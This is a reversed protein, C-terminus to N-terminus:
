RSRQTRARRTTRAKRVKAKTAKAKPAAKVAPQVSASATFRAFRQTVFIRGDAALVEGVGVSTFSPNLINARHGASAMLREHANDVSANYAVNEAVAGAGAPRNAGFFSDDHSIDGANAQTQSWARASDFLRGDIALPALGANVREANIKAVFTMEDAGTDGAASAPAVDLVGAGVLGLGTAVAMFRIVPRRM